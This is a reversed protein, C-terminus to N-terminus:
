RHIHDLHLMQKLVSDLEADNFISKWDEKIIKERGYDMAILCADSFPNDGRLGNALAVQVHGMLMARAAPEPVGVTDVTERLADNLLSGIMCAVVEVLTPELYALQKVTVWHVDLVPAYMLRIVTEAVAQVAADGSELAAVVDQPAAIGGFTDELEEKTKRQLFVSPHCPHAVAYEVDERQFLLNAYAAAPDLTLVVAGTRLQPVVAASVPGLAIDPVALIVVDADKVATDTDTVVRGADITRQQGAPSNEAYFVTHESRMLNNSVRMGMKGGAGVVAITLSM